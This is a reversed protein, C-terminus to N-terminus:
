DGRGWFPYFEPPRMLPPPPLTFPSPPCRSLSALPPLFPALALSRVQNVLLGQVGFVDGPVLVQVLEQVV